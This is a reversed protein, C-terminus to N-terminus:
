ASDRVAAAVEESTPWIDRLYVPKGDTGTGLPEHSSISTSAHRRARLRRGAAALGPLERPTLPNIRGEFNRNGCLVAAAVLDHEKIAAAVPEPLPGSNGICTTCGYGVLNFGCRRSRRRDPRRQAPLRHRGALRARPQDEGLAERDPRARRGEEGAPGRRADGVSEVHQHLEHDRRDRGRRPAIEYRPMATAHVQRRRDGHERKYATDDAGRPFGGEDERLPVRDQPRKPGALSPEVTALDLELTNPSSRARADDRHPVPGAGQLVGRGTAVHEPARGTLRLYALTEADVPFFGMTAGYEPAM